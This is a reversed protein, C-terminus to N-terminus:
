GLTMNAYRYRADDAVTRYVGGSPAELAVDAYPLPVPAAGSADLATGSIVVLREPAGGVKVASCTTWITASAQSGGGPLSRGTLWQVGRSSASSATVRPMTGVM